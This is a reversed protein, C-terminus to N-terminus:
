AEKLESYHEMNFNHEEKEQELLKSTSVMFYTHQLYDYGDDSVPDDWTLDINYWVDDILVANWVHM